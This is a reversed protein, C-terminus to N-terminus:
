KKMIEELQERTYREAEPYLAKEHELIEDVTWKFKIVRAPVGGVLAYPPMSKNVVAGAAVTCGRGITVGALLTVNCGIFVDEKVEVDKDLNPQKEKETISRYFRGLVMMHNGTRVTLYTSAASHPGMIFKANTASIVSGYDVKTDEHLFVNSPNDIWVPPTITVTKHCKGFKSRRIGLYTKYFSFLGRVFPNKKINQIMINEM